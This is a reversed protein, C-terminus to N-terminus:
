KRRASRQDDSHRRLIHQFRRCHGASSKWPEENIIFHDNAPGGYITTRCAPTTANITITDDGNGAKINLNDVTEDYNIIGDAGMSSSVLSTATLSFTTNANTGSDDVYATDTGENGQITLANQITGLSGPIYSQGKGAL